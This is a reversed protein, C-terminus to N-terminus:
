ETASAREAQARERPAEILHYRLAERAVYAAKIRWRPTNVVLAALAITPNDAPAYGVFWTYGRYPREASLSGTKGAVRIDPLFPNGREDHFSRRGTGRSVTREMMTGVARATRRTIVARHISPEHEYFVEGAVDDVREVLAPRPMQGDNAITAAILAGHMPSMHMHWFGAATRARELRDSPVEAPSPSMTVDFPLRHGFGFASAYRTLLPVSLHRDALRAFVANISGGLAEGLTACNPAGPDDELHRARLRSGGGRYCVEEDVDVGADVLAAATVIKFVSATPPTPDLALDGADPNASSHSVYALVRGTSPNLAVVSGYPVEYRRFLSEVHDQLGPDLTLVARRGGPMGAVFHDGELERNAPDFGELARPVALPEIAADPVPSLSHAAPAANKLIFPTPEDAGASSVAAACVAGVLSLLAFGKLDQAALMPCTYPFTSEDVLKRASWSGDVATKGFFRRNRRNDPAGRIQKM